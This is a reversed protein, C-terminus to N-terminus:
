AGGLKFKKVVDRPIKKIRVNKSLKIKSMSKLCYVVFSEDESIERMLDDIYDQTVFDETVHCYRKENVVGHLKGKGIFKFGEIKCVAMIMPGNDYNMGVIMGKEKKFLSEGLVCYRFGGGGKFSLEKTVGTKDKGSIVGKLRQIGHTEAHKAMEIMIWRRGMKHAVAGTTGSGAFSDLVWDGEDSGMEIIRKLLKEPKKSNKFKVGGENQIGEWAIDDWFDTLLTVPTRVGGLEMVKKSYFAFLGGNM